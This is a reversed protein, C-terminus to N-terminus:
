TPSVPQAGSEDPDKDSHDVPEPRAPPPGVPQEQIPPQEVSGNNANDFGARIGHFIMKLLM